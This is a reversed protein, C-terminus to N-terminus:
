KTLVAHPFDGESVISLVKLGAEAALAEVENEALVRYYGVQVSFVADSNKGRAAAAPGEKGSNNTRTSRGFYSLLIPGRTLDGMRKLADVRARDSHLHSFSAWGLVAGAFPALRLLEVRGEGSLANLTPLDQYGGALMTVSAGSVGAVTRGRASALLRASPDFAVVTYGLDQLAFAERGGGVGGVLITAPPRPFFRDIAAKEWGFLERRFEPSDARYIGTTGYALDNYADFFRDGAFALVFRSRARDFLRYGRDLWASAAVARALLRVFM